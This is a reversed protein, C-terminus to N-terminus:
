ALSHESRGWPHAGFQWALLGFSGALLPERRTYPPDIRLREGPAAGQLTTAGNSRTQLGVIHCFDCVKEKPHGIKHHLARSTRGEGHSRVRILGTGPVYTRSMSERASRSPEPSVSLPRGGNLGVHRGPVKSNGM